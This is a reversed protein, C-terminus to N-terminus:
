SVRGFRRVPHPDQPLPDPLCTVSEQGVNRRPELVVLGKDGVEHLNRHHCIVEVEFSCLFVDGSCPHASPLSPWREESPWPHPYFLVLKDDIVKDLKQMTALVM